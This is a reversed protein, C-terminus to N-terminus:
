AGGERFDVVGQQGKQVRVTRFPADLICPADLPIVAYRGEELDTAGYRGLGTTVVDTETDGGVVKLTVGSVGSGGCTVEGTIRPPVVGVAAFVVDVPETGVIEVSQEGPDFVTNQLRLGTLEFGTLHATYSGPELGQFTFSGTPDTSTTAVVDGGRLLAVVLNTVGEGTKVTAVAGRLQGEGSGGPGTPGPDEDCGPLLLFATLVFPILPARSFPV